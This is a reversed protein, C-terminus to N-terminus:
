RSRRSSAWDLLMTGVSISSMRVVATQNDTINVAEVIGRLFGAKHEIVSKDASQPPGLEGTAVFYGAKLAKELNSGVIYTIDSM